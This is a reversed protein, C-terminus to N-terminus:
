NHILYLLNVPHPITKQTRCIKIEATRVVGDCGEIFGVVLSLRWKHRPEVDEGIVVVYWSKGEVAGVGIKKFKQEKLSAVHKQYHM